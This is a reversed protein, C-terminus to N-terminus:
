RVAQMLADPLSCDRAVDAGCPRFQLDRTLCIRAERIMGAECTITIGQATLGPNAELFAEEVVKAPLTVDRELRALVPPITVAEYANRSAELYDAAPLGSCRGHKKWQHWALGGSGMIDAMAATERRSPDRATSSCHSPWGREYQPWLGHLTFSHDHRPDCQDAGRADGELTCFSPSWSLALVYYDFVGAREGEAAAPAGTLALALLAASLSLQRM